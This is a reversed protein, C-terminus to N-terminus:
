CHNPHFFMSHIQHHNFHTRFNSLVSTLILTHSYIYSFSFSYMPNNFHIKIRHPQKFRFRNALLSHTAHSASLWLILHPHWRKYTQLLHEASSYWHLRLARTSTTLKYYMRNRDTSSVVCHDVSHYKSTITIKLEVNSIIHLNVIEIM